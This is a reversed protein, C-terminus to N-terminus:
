GRLLKMHAWLEDDSLGSRMVNSGVTLAWGNAYRRFEYLAGERTQITIVEQYRYEDDKM